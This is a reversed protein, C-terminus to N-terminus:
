RQRQKFSVGYILLNGYRVDCGEGELPSPLGSVQVFWRHFFAPAIRWSGREGQAPSDPSLEVMACSWKIWPTNQSPRPRTCKRLNTSKPSRLAPLSGPPLSDQSVSSQFKSSIKAHRSACSSSP